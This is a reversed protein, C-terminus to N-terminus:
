DREIVMFNGVQPWWRLMYEIDWASRGPLCAATLVDRTKVARKMANRVLGLLHLQTSRKVPNIEMWHVSDTDTTM